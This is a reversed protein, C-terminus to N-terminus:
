ELDDLNENGKKSEEEKSYQKEDDQSNINTKNSPNEKELNHLNVPKELILNEQKSWKTNASDLNKKM